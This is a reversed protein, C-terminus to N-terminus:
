ETPSGWGWRDVRRAWEHAEIWKSISRREAYVHLALLVVMVGLQSPTCGVAVVTIGLLAGLPNSGTDGLMVTRRAERVAYGPMAALAAALLLAVPSGVGVAGWVALPIGVVASVKLTRLPRLDFLNATNASLAVVAGGLLARLWGDLSIPWLALGMMWAAGLVSVAGGSLFKVAGTTVRGRLLGGLHGRLGGVSRDGWRDDLFGLLAFAVVTVVVPAIGRGGCAWVWGAAALVSLPFVLGVGAVIPRGAFNKRTLGCRALLVALPGPLLAGCMEGILIVAGWDLPGPTM